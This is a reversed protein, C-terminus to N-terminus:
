TGFAQDLAPAACLRRAAAVPLVVGGPALRDVASARAQVGGAAAHVGARTFALAPIDLDPDDDEHNPNAHHRSHKGVWWDYSVGTLGSHVYGAIENWRRSTFIQKHGADHGIFALQTTMFALVAAVALQWWSDGLLAFAVWAGAYAALNATIRAYYYGRRRTLLGAQKIETSLQAFDSAQRLAM